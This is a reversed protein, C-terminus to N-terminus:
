TKAVIFRFLIVFDDNLQITAFKEVKHVISLGHVCVGIILHIEHYVWQASKPKYLASDENNMM